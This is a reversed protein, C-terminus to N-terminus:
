GHRRAHVLFEINGEAQFANQDLDTNVISAYHLMSAVSIADAHGEEIVAALDELVQWFGNKHLPRRSEFGRGGGQCFSFELPAHRM